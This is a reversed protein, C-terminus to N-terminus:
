IAYQIAATRSGTTALHMSAGLAEAVIVLGDLVLHPAHTLLTADKRSAPEGESGNAVVVPRRADKISEIKRWTPFGSGGRGTLGSDAIARLVGGAGPLGGYTDTHARHSADPALFLRQTTDTTLSASSETITM